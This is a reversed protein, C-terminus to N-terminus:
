RKGGKRKINDRSRTPQKEKLAAEKEEKVKRKSGESIEQETLPIPLNGSDIIDLPRRDKFLALYLCADVFWRWWMDDPKSPHEGLLKANKEHSAYDRATQLLFSMEIKEIDEREKHGLRGRDKFVYYLKAIWKAERITIPKGYDLQDAWLMLVIPLADGPIPHEMIDWLSWPCDEPDPGLKTEKDRINKLMVTVASIGPWDSGYNQDLGKEKMIELLEEHVKTPGYDPHESHIRSILHKVEPTLHAGKAM